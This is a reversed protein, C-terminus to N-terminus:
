RAMTRGSKRSGCSMRIPSRLQPYNPEIAAVASEIRSICEVYDVRETKTTVNGQKPYSGSTVMSRLQAPTYTKEASEIHSSESHVSSRDVLWGGVVLTAAVTFIKAINTM